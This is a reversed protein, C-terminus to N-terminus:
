FFGLNELIILNNFEHHTNKKFENPLIIYKKKDINIEILM